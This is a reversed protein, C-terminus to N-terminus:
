ERTKLVAVLDLRDLRRRVALGSLLSAAIVTLFSWAVTSASVQFSLRYIENNFGGMILLGFLYGIGAGVPLALGTLIALEGLLILSIEGRTFGLVRLSALERSRESLSVRASNYVVGFSIIGAFIVFIFIMLNMNEAMSERFNRLTAERLAVGAVAPMAKVDSYFREVRAPDLTLAAGTITTGERLLRHVGDIRMYAQLGLSDDVLEFVTIDRVPRSGELVEARIVDGPAVDLIEGLIRSLVLGDPPLARAGRSRDVVRSLQPFEPLGTIALTRTRHGARLRVPVSRVVEMDLVGPLHEVDFAARASRPEVFSITADQRMTMFFQENILLNMVDMLALAVFLVAVAFAIGVISIASRVPQREINRLVMRNTLSLRLRQWPHEVLSRRYRAPPEPRMAEAPPIRVARRVASQAGLAAVILSGVVSQVGVDASVQYDLVPFRFYSNYLGVMAAGLRWGAAVGTGAGAAAIALGWKVYHWGLERNSYGLAKLAAIQPRQLALARTLAVNLIFGAVGLFILPLVFGFSQLQALENELTWASSQLRQPVAGLGGYPEILRDLSAIVEPESAGRALALSVDNFGGEMNFAAALARRSMWFIGFQRRDPFLEGPRIAYVYEPSLAVGVITLWRHRGNIIAAVRDGPAFGHAECFLESALVEDPREPDIWRGRRLYVDNLPPRVREPLSILRGTAPESMGPVDLTVDAVVRTAAVAVGPIAAIREELSAPARKLSAFVDAFRATEYYLSRTRQLSDFNSMFTVFMTVGAAIVSAIALAQGKMEWLDRLLKRDLIPIRSSLKVM